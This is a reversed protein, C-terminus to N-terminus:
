RAHGEQLEKVMRYVAADNGMELLVACLATMEQIASRALRVQMPPADEYAELSESLFSVGRLLMAPSMDIFGSAQILGERDHENAIKALCAVGAAIPFHDLENETETSM